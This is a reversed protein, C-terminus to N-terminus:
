EVWKSENKWYGALQITTKFLLLLFLIVIAYFALLVYPTSLRLRIKAGKEAKKERARKIGVRRQSYGEQSFLAYYHTRHLKLLHCTTIAWKWTWSCSRHLYKKNEESWRWGHFLLCLFLIISKKVVNKVYCWWALNNKNNNTFFVFPFFIKTNLTVWNTCSMMLNKVMIWCYRKRWGLKM